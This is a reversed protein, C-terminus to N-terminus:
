ASAALIQAARRAGAIGRAAPGLQLEALAGTVHLGPSWQLTADVMPYGCPARPLALDGIARDIWAGGPRAGDFGTALIVRDATLSDPERDLGFRVRGAPMPVVRSIRALVHAVAGSKVAVDLRSAVDAPMSGRRRGAMVQVRRRRYDRERELEPSGAFLRADVDFPHIRPAHRSLLTVTGPSREALSLALQAGSIGGGVVVVREGPTVDGRRFSLDLVHEIRAGL